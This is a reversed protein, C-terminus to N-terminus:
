KLSKLYAIVDDRDRKKKLKLVMASRRKTRTKVFKKPDTLYGDLSAADWSWEAGKLGKYRKFGEASGAKRGWINFLSPGIKNKGAKISHCAKCKKFVKKGRVPDGDAFAYTPVTILIALVFFMLFRLIIM